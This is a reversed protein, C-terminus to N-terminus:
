QGSSGGSGSGAGYQNMYNNMMNYNMYTGMGGMLQNGANQYAGAWANAAGTQGQGWLQAGQMGLQGSNTAANMGMQGTQSSAVQGTGSMGALQNYTNQNQAMYRNFQNGYEQSAAGQAYNTLDVGAQGKFYGGLAANQNVSQQGQQLRFQYSPDANPGTTNFQFPANLSGYGIAGTNGSTGMLDGLQGLAAGGSARWPAMDTRNQQYMDWEMQQGATASEYARESAQNQSHAQLSAGYAGSAAGLLAGGGLVAGSVGM